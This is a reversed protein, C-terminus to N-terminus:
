LPIFRRISHRDHRYDHRLIKAPYSGFSWVLGNGLYLAEHSPSGYFIVDGPVANRIGDVPRGFKVQGWTNTYRWDVAPLIKAWACGGAVSGSCDARTIWEAPRLQSPRAQSYFISMRRNYVANHWGMQLAIQKDRPSIQSALDSRLLSLAFADFYPALKEHRTRTYNRQNFEDSFRPGWSRRVELPKSMLDRLRYGSVSRAYARKVAYVADRHHDGEGVQIFPVVLSFSPVQPARLRDLHLPTVIRTIPTARKHPDEVDWGDLSPDYSEDVVDAYSDYVVAM